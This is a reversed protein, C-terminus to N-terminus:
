FRVSLGIAPGRQTVDYKFTNGTFDHTQYKQSLVRYGARLTTPYQFLHTRYGLYGQASYSSKTASDFGGVDVEGSATWREDLDTLMRVGVFPDSWQAKKRTAFGISDIELKSALRTWRVGATPEVRWARPDGFITTGGLAREYALYYVGAAITTQTINLGAKQGLVRHSEHTDAHVGDVYFGLSRNTVDLNGMFVSRLNNLTESFPVDVHTSVGGLTAQGSMSPAWAFPSVLVRWPADGHASAASSDVAQAQQWQMSFCSIAILIYIMKTKACKFTMAPNKWKQVIPESRLTM